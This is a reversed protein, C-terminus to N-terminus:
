RKHEQENRNRECVRLAHNLEGPYTSLYGRCFVGSEGGDKAWIWAARSSIAEIIGWPEDGNRGIEKARPWSDDLYDEQFWEVGAKDTENVNGACKWWRDASSLHETTVHQELELMFGLPVTTAVNANLWPPKLHVAVFHSNREILSVVGVEEAEWSDPLTHKGNFYLDFSSSPIFFSVLDAHVCVHIVCCCLPVWLRPLQRGQPHAGQEEVLRLLGM